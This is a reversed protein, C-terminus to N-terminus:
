VIVGFRFNQFTNVGDAGFCVLRAALEKEKLNGQTMLYNM